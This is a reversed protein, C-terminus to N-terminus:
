RDLLRRMQERLERAEAEAADARAEATQGADLVEQYTPLRVGTAPDYFCLWGESGRLEWSLRLDLMPSYGRIAGSDEQRIEFRQYRGNVLQEGILPEGYYDGGSGDFRWYEGIGLRQYLERKRGGDNEATTESAVELAFDPM